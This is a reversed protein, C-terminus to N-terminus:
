VLGAALLDQVDLLGVVRGDADVVPLEDFQRERMMALAETALKRSAITLPSRTMYQEVPAASVDMKERSYHRRFDGDTFFGLLKGDADVVCAAGARPMTMATLVELVPAEPPVRPCREDTRMLEGVTLLKRGLEGAPHYRAYDEATFGRAKLVTLALADGIALMAATSASPALGLPCAERIDGLELVVDGGRGLTSGRSSTIAVIGAGIRRVAELIRLVEETEGSNSLAVVLDEAQVAGLDGHVAEAPHMSLAPTGTSSFTAAIKQGIIGAKGMGTLVVRGKRKEVCDIVAQAAARFDEGIREGLKGIVGAEHALVQRAYDLDIV